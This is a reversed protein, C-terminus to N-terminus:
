RSTRSVQRALDECTPGTLPKIESINKNFNIEIVIRSIDPRRSRWRKVAEVASEDLGYGLPQIVKIDHMCHDNGVSATLKVEGSVHAKRAEETYSADPGSVMPESYGVGVRYSGHSNKTTNDTQGLAMSGTLALFLAM